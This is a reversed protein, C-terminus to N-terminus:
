LLMILKTVSIEDVIRMWPMRTKPPFTKNWSVWCMKNITIHYIIMGILLLLNKYVCISVSREIIEHRCFSVNWVAQPLCYCHFIFGKYSFEMFFFFFFFMLQVIRYVYTISCNEQSKFVLIFSIFQANHYVVRIEYKECWYSNLSM